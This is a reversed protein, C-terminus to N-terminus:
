SCAVSAIEARAILWKDGTESVLYKGSWARCGFQRDETVLSRVAVVAQQGSISAVRGAFRAKYIGVGQEYLVFRYEDMSLSGLGLQRYAVAFHQGNIASWYTEVPTLPSSSNVVAAQKPAAVAPTAKPATAAPASHVRAAAPRRRVIVRRPPQPPALAV